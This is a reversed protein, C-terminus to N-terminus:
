PSRPLMRASRARQAAVERWEDSPDAAASAQVRRAVDHVVDDTLTTDRTVGAAAAALAYRTVTKRDIGTERAIRRQSHAELLRRLIERVEIM